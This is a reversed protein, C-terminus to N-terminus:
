ERMRLEVEGVGVERAHEAGRQRAPEVYGPGRAGHDLAVLPESAEGGEKTGERRM